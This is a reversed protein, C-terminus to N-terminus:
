PVPPTNVKWQAPPVTKLFEEVLGRVANRSEPTFPVAVLKTMYGIPVNYVPDFRIDGADKAKADAPTKIARLDEEQARAKLATAYTTEFESAMLPAFRQGRLLSLMVSLLERQVARAELMKVDRKSLKTKGAPPVLVGDMPVAPPPLKPNAEAAAILARIQEELRLLEPLAEVADLGTLMDYFTGSLAHPNLGSVAVAEDDKKFKVQGLPRGPKSFDIAKLRAMLVPVVEARRARLDALQADSPHMDRDRVMGYVYLPLKVEVPPPSDCMQDYNGPQVIVSDVLKEPSLAPKDAAHAATIALALPLLFHPRM